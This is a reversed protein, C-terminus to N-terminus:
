LSDCASSQLLANYREEYIKYVVEMRYANWVKEYAKKCMESAAAPNSLVWEIANQIAESSKEEVLIGCQSGDLATLMDPIAGKRTSIVLKGHSMAELISIPFGESYSPLLLVDQTKLFEVAEDNRKPGILRIKKGLEDGAQSKIKQVVDSAGPGVISLVVDQKTKMVAEILEFIGKEPYLNAMFLLNRFTYPISSTKPVRISNPTLYVKSALDSYASLCEYTKSDLVWIQDYIKMTKLLFRSFFSKRQFVEPIRGYHCHMILRLGKRGCLKGLVFDRLTGLSGSTTTHMIAFDNEKLAQKVEKRLFRLDLLGAVTRTLLSTAHHPRHKLSSDISFLSFNKSNFTELYARTWTNIGGNGGTPAMFLILKFNM